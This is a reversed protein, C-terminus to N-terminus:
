KDIVGDYIAQSSLGPLWIDTVKRGHIEPEDPLDVTWKETLM